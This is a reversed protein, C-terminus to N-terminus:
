NDNNNDKEYGKKLIKICKRGAWSSIERGRVWLFRCFQYKFTKKIKEYM